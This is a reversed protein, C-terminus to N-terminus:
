WSREILTFHGAIVTFHGAIVEFHGTMVTLHGAIITLHGLELRMIFILLHELNDFSWMKRWTAFIGAAFGM